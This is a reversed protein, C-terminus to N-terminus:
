LEKIGETTLAMLRFSKGAKIIASLLAMHEKGSGSILNIAVETGDIKENITNVMDQILEEMKKRVDIVVLEAKSDGKYNEKGFDNTFLIIKDWEGDAILRSVHGWTGKGTSLFAILEM